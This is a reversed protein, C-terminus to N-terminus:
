LRVEHEGQQVGPWFKAVGTRVSWPWVPARRRAQLANVVGNVVENAPTAM